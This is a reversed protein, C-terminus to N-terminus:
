DLDTYINVAAEKGVGLGAEVKLIVLTVTQLSEMLNKALSQGQEVREPSLPLLAMLSQLRM